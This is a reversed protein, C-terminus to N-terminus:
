SGKGFSQYDCLQDFVFWFTERRHIRQVHPSFVIEQSHYPDKLKTAVSIHDATSPHANEAILLDQGKRKVREGRNKLVKPRRDLGLSLEAFGKVLWM